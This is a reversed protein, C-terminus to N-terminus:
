KTNVVEDILDKGIIDSYADWVPLMKEKFADKQEPTLTTVEVGAEEMKELFESSKEAALSRNYDRCEAAAEM